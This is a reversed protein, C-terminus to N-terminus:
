KSWMVQRCLLLLLLLMIYCLMVYCLMIIVYDLRGWILLLFVSILNRGKLPHESNRWLFLNLLQDGERGCTLRMHTYNTHRQRCIWWVLTCTGTSEFLPPYIGNEKTVCQAHFSVISSHDFNDWVKVWKSNKKWHLWSVGRERIVRQYTQSLNRVENWDFDSTLLIWVLLLSQDLWWRIIMFM